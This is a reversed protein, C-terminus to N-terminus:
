GAKGDARVSCLPKAYAVVFWLFAAVCAWLSLRYLMATEAPWLMVGFSRILGASLLLVLVVSLGPLAKIARGTHGLSVRAMMSVIMTLMAGVTLAHIASDLTGISWESLGWMLLGIFIFAYSLHLGWLLPQRWSHQWGWKLWRWCSIVATVGLAIGLAEAGVYWGLVRGLLLVTVVLVCGMLVGEVRASAAPKLIGTANATFFPIVRGGLLLMFCVILWVALYASQHILEANAKIRGTQMAINAITLMVLLGVLPLNKWMKVAAIKQWLIFSAGLLFAVDIAAILVDPVATPLALLLRGLFWVAVLVWLAPGSISPRGTWNQVATLLFGTIIAAVFGFLMEHQHWWIIGGVPQFALRGYWFLLWLSLAILSFLSGLLFLPRFALGTKLVSPATDTVSVTHKLM